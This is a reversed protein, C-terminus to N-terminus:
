KRRSSLCRKRAKHKNVLALFEGVSVKKVEGGPPKMWVFSGPDPEIDNARRPDNTDILVTGRYNYFFERNGGWFESSRDININQTSSTVEVAYVKGSKEWYYEWGPFATDHREWAEAQAEVVTEMEPSVDGAVAYENVAPAPSEERAEMERRPARGPRMPRLPM